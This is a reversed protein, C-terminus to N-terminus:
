KTILLRATSIKQNSRLRIMYIGPTLDNISVSILQGKSINTNTSRVLQGLSNIFELTVNESQLNEASIWVTNGAPNPFVNLESKRNLNQVFSTTLVSTLTTNTAVPANFDFYINATNRITDSTTMTTVPAIHYTVAGHSAPENTTSDPLLINSFTFTLIRSSDNLSYIFPHTGSIVRFTNLDVLSSLTDVLVVIFATDTGTNQFRITYNLDTQAAVADPTLDASPVVTKENPDYSSTFRNKLTAMNNSLDIDPGSLSYIVLTDRVTDGIVATLSNYVEIVFQNSLWADGGPLSDIVFYYKNGVISDPPLGSSVYSSNPDLTFEVLTNNKISGLNGYKIGISSTSGPRRPGSYCYVGVDYPHDVILFCNDCTIPCTDGISVSYYGYPANAPINVTATVSDSNWATMSTASFSTTSSAQNFLINSAMANVCTQSFDASTGTFTISVSSGPAGAGPNLKLNQARSCLSVTIFIIILYIQKM